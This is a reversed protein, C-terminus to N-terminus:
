KRPSVKMGRVMWASGTGSRGSAVPVTRTAPVRTVSSVITSCNRAPPRGGLREGLSERNQRRGVHMGHQRVVQTVPLLHVSVERFLGFLSTLHDGAEPFTV